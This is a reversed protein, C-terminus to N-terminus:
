SALQKQFLLENACKVACDSLQTRDESRRQSSKQSWKNALARRTGIVNEATKLPQKRGNPLAWGKKGTGQSIKKGDLLVRKRSQSCKNCAKESGKGKEQMGSIISPHRVESLRQQPVLGVRAARHEAFGPRDASQFSVTVREVGGPGRFRGGL